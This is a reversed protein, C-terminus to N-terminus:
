KALADFTNKYRQIFARGRARRVEPSMDRGQLFVKGDESVGVAVQAGDKVDLLERVEENLVIALGADTQTIKLYTV